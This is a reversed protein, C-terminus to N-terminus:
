PAFSFIKLIISQVESFDENIFKLLAKFRFESLGQQGKLAVFSTIGRKNLGNLKSPKKYILCLFVSVVKHLTLMCFFCLIYHYDKKQTKYYVGLPSNKKQSYSLVM